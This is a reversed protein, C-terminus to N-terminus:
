RKAPRKKVEDDKIAHLMVKNPHGPTAGSLGKSWDYSVAYAFITGTRNFASATVPGPCPDFTKLRSRADKDWYNITGDSGCTSFTGHVPHFNIDNVAFVLAQDKTNLGQDRRHCKFSFNNQSDKDDVYQIAVRGEVTGVAFGNSSPFCSVVRTQWKLPSIMTKYPTVPSSSLNFIQIHREATGVVLLPYAVDFSYCREPLQVTSIPNASRLDWYKLTKDWSGTALIGGQPTDIWKVVKVPADHQAVQQSQGSQIDYLRAANDCGGSIIKNGEKNWCVSLVPGQHGYMAKGQTQGNAGVEYIRVNNDWSGVALYDALPSFSLSSISDPPPDVVEVDKDTTNSVNTSTSAAGFFSM